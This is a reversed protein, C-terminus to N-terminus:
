FKPGSPPYPGTPIDHIRPQSPKHQQNPKSPQDPKPQQPQQFQSLQPELLEPHATLYRWAWPQINFDFAFLSGPHGINTSRYIIGAQQLGAAVGDTIPFACTRTNRALFGALTAKEQPTLEHLCRRRARILRRGPLHVKTIFSVAASVTHALLLITALLFAGGLWSRHQDRFTTLGLQDLQQPPLFLLLGTTLAIAILYRPSLKLWDLYKSFDFM